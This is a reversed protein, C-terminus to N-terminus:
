RSCRLRWKRTGARCSAHAHDDLQSISGRACGFRMGVQMQFYAADTFLQLLDEEVQEVQQPLRAQYLLLCQLSSRCLVHLHQNRSGSLTPSLILPFLATPTSTLTTYKAQKQPQPQPQSKQEEKRRLWMPVTAARGRGRSQTSPHPRLRPLPTHPHHHPHHLLHLRYHANM